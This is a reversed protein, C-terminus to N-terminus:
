NSLEELLERKYKYYTNRAVNLYERMIKADSFHGDFDKSQDKIIKKVQEEKATNHNKSGM